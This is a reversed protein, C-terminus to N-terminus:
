LTNVQTRKLNLLIVVKTVEDLERQVATTLGVGGGPVLRDDSRELLEEESM